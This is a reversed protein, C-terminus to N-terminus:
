PILRPISIRSLGCGPPFSEVPYIAGSPFFLIENLFGSFTGVLRPRGARGLMSFTM